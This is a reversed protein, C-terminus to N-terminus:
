LKSAKRPLLAYMLKNMRLSGEGDCKLTLVKRIQRFSGGKHKSGWWCPASKAEQTVGDCQHRYLFKLGTKWRRRRNPRSKPGSKGQSSSGQGPFRLNETHLNEVKM